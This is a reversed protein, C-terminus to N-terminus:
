ASAVFYPLGRADFAVRVPMGVVVDQWAVGPMNAVLVVRVDTGDMAAHVVVYPVEDAFGPSFPRHPVVFSQVQGTGALTRWAFRWGSCVPCVGRPPWRFRGCTLCQQALLEGHACGEWFPASDPDAVPRPKEAAM